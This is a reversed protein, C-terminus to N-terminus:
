RIKAGKGTNLEGFLPSLILKVYRDYVREEFFMLGIMQACESSKLNMYVENVVRFNEYGWQKDHQCSVLRQANNKDLLSGTRKCQVASAANQLYPLM